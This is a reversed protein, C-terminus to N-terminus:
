SATSLYAQYDFYDGPDDQRRGFDARNVRFWANIRFPVKPQHKSLAQEVWYVERLRSTKDRDATDEWEPHKSANSAYLVSLGTM